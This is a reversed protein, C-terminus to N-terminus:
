LIGDMINLNESDVANDVVDSPVELTELTDFEKFRFTLIFSRTDGDFAQDGTMRKMMVNGLATCDFRFEAPDGTKKDVFVTIDASAETLDLDEPLEFKGYEAASVVLDQLAPGSLHVDMRRVEQDGLMETEKAADAKIEGNMIKQILGFVFKTSDFSEVQEESETDTQQHRIWKSNHLNTYTTLVDGDQQVYNELPVPYSLNLASITVTGNEHSRMNEGMLMEVDLEADVGIDVGFGLYSLTGDYDASLEGTVSRLKQMKSVTKGAIGPPTSNFHNYAALIGIVALAAVVIAAIVGKKM